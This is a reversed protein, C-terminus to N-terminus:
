TQCAVVRNWANAIYCRANLSGKMSYMTKLQLRLHTAVSSVQAAYLQASLQGVASQFLQQLAAPSRFHCVAAAPVARCAVIGSPWPQQVSLAAAAPSQLQM